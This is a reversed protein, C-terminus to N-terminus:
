TVLDLMAGIEMVPAYRPRGDAGYGVPGSIQILRPVSSDRISLLLGTSTQPYEGQPLDSEIVEAEIIPAATERPRGRLGDFRPNIPSVSGSLSSPAVSLIM